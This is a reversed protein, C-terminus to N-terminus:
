ITDSPLNFTTGFPIHLTGSSDSGISDFDEVALVPTTVDERYMRTSNNVRLHGHTDSGGRLLYITGAAGDRYGGAGGYAQANLGLIGYQDDNALLAIRGGSGSGGSTGSGAGGLAQLTAGSGTIK